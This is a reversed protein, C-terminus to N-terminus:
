KMTAITRGSFNKMEQAFDHKRDYEILEELHEGVKHYAQAYQEILDDCSREFRPAGLFAHEALFETVPLSVPIDRKGCNGWAGGELVYPSKHLRGYGCYGCSVGENGLAKVMTLTRIGGLKTEDFRMYHYAFQREVGEYKKVPIVWDLDSIMEELKLANRNRMENREDLTDLSSNALAIAVPHPRYKHGLGTLMYSRYKSDEPLAALRDYHGFALSREFCERSNTILIGGEGAPLMKSGQLSYCGVDGITGVHKGHYLTGHAHSCDEIVKLGYKKAIKMIADMDCAGGWVHVLMIARTKPTIKKEIDVPDVCHTDKDVDCFVPIMQQSLIPAMTAWFTFSPVIVEDGPQLGVAFLATDLASTGNNTAVAYNAGMYDAFRKEFDLVSQSQSIEGKEMLAVADAIGKPSCLPYCGVEKYPITVAKEGGLLALQKM